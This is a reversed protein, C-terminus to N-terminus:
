GNEQPPEVDGPTVPAENLLRDENVLFSNGKLHIFAIRALTVIDLLMGSDDGHGFILECIEEAYSGGKYGLDDSAMQILRDLAELTVPRPPFIVEEDRKRELWSTVETLGKKRALAIIEDVQAISPSKM